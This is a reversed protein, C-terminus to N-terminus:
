LDSLFLRHPMLAGCAKLGHWRTFHSCLAQAPQSLLGTLFCRIESVSIRYRPHLQHCDFFSEFPLKEYPLGQVEDISPVYSESEAFKPLSALIEVRLKKTVRSNNHLAHMLWSLADATTDRGAIMGAFVIDRIDGPTITRGSTEMTDLIISVIDRKASQDGHQQREMTGIITDMLFEDIMAVADRLRRETGVNLLRKLVWLWAPTTFRYGSIRHADDFAAEFPHADPSALNELKRGFGIETFTEFTFKEM